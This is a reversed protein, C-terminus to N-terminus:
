KEIKELTRMQTFKEDCVHLQVSEEKFIELQAMISIANLSYDMSEDTHYQDMTVMNINVLSDKILQFSVDGEKGYGLTDLMESFSKANEKMEDPKYYVEVGGTKVQPGYGDLDCSVVLLVFFIAIISRM